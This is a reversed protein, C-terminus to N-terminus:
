GGFNVIQIGAQAPIVFLFAISYRSVAFLPSLRFAVFPLRWIISMDNRGVNM